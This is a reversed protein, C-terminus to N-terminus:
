GHRGSHSGNCCGCVGSGNSCCNGPEEKERRFGAKYDVQKPLPFKEGSPSISFKESM